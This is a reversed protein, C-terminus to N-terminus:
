RCVTQAWLVGIGLYFLFCRWLIVAVSWGLEANHFLSDIDKCALVFTHRSSYVDAALSVWWQKRWCLGPQCLLFSANALRSTQVCQNIQMMGIIHLWIQLPEQGCEIAKKLGVTKKSSSLSNFEAWDRMKRLCNNDPPLIINCAPPPTQLHLSSCRSRCFVVLSYQLDKYTQRCCRCLLLAHEIHM